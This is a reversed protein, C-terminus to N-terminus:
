KRESTAAAPKKDLGLKVNVSSLMEEVRPKWESDPHAAIFEEYLAKADRLRGLQELCRGEGFIAQPALFHNAHSAAFAAFAAQAENYQGRAEMCHIRGLEAGAAFPHTPFKLSFETYKALAADFNGADFQAKALRLLAIPTTPAKPYDAVLAELEQISRVTSLKEAAATMTNRTRIRYTQVALGAVLVVGVTVALVKGNTRLYDALQQVEHVHVAPTTTQETNM